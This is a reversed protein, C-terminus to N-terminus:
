YRDKYDPRPNDLRDEDMVEVPIEGPAAPPAHERRAMLELDFGEKRIRLDLYFLTWCVTAYSQLVIDLMFVLVVYIVFNTPIMEQRVVEGALIQKAPPVIINLLGSWVLLGGIRIVFLLLMMGFIRWRFGETLVKSRGLARIGATGELVVVQPVFLFWIAVMIGVVLTVLLTAILVLAGAAGGGGVAALFAGPVVCLVMSVFLIVWALLWSGVLAGFRGLLHGFAEGLGVKRDVYEGVTVHLAVATALLSLVLELLSLPLQESSIASMAELYKQVQKEDNLDRPLAPLDPIVLEPFVLHFILIPLLMIFIIAYFTGFRAWLLKLGRDLMDGVSMAGIEFKM